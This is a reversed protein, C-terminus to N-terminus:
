YSIQAQDDAIYDEQALNLEDPHCIGKEIANKRLAGYLEAMTAEYYPHVLFVGVNFCLSGLLYWGYFSLQLVFIEFKYGETMDMSLKLARDYGINPNDALIYPVMSYAYSKIIGPIIFLLTWAFTFLYRWAISKVINMYQGNKFCYFLNTFECNGKRNELFFKVKGVLIPAVVLVNIVLGAAIALLLLFWYTSLFLRLSEPSQSINNFYSTFKDTMANSFIGHNFVNSDANFLGIRFGNFRFEPGIKGNIIASLLCILFSIWYTKSLVSKAKSKLIARSWM